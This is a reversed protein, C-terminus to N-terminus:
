PSFNIDHSPITTPYPAPELIAEPPPDTPFEVYTGTRVPTIFDAPWNRNLHRLVSQTGAIGWNKLGTGLIGGTPMQTGGIEGAAHFCNVATRSTRTLRDDAKYKIRKSELDKIQDLHLDYLGKTIEYPGFMAVSRNGNNVLELTEDLTHNKGPFSRARNLSPFPISLAGKFVELNPNQAFKSPLWSIHKEKRKGNPLVHVLTVFTHSDEAWNATGQSAFSVLFYRDRRDARRRAPKAPPLRENM